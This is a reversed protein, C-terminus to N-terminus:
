LDKQNIVRAFMKELGDVYASFNFKEALLQRGNEGMTEALMKNQLLTDICQAYRLHDMWPVLFGNQGDLLWEKIGGADFAVVPLAHHMGELGAAGFPEAWVSSMVMMRALGYYNLLEQQSVYGKFHVRESLGLKRCLAECYPRHGGDGFILCQFDSKVEKLAHLLVDVGKGRIIQGTYIILNSDASKRPEPLGMRPPTPAHIEIKQEDFNNRLLEQKMYNTAVILREFQQNIQIEKRRNFYSIWRLPFGSGQNRGV